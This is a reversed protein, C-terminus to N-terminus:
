KHLISGQVFQSTNLISFKNHMDCLILYKVDDLVDQKTKQCQCLMLFMSNASKTRHEFPIIIIDFIQQINLLEKKISWHKKFQILDWIIVDANGGGGSEDDHTTLLYPLNQFTNMSRVMSIQPIKKLLMLNQPNWLTLTTGAAVFLITGDDSYNAATVPDRHYYGTMLSKWTEHKKQGFTTLVYNIDHREKNSRNTEPKLYKTVHCEDWIRFNHDNHAFTLFRNKHPHFAIGKILNSHHPSDIRTNLVFEDKSINYHWVQLTVLNVMNETEDISNIKQKNKNKGDNDEMLLDDDEDEDQDKDDEDVNGDAQANIDSGLVSHTTRKIVTILRTGDQNFIMFEAVFRDPFKQQTRSILPYPVLQLSGRSEDKNLDYFQISGPISPIVFCSRNRPNSCFNHHYNILKPEMRHCIGIGEITKVITNNISDVICIRNSDLCIAFKIENPSVSISRIPGGLRPLYQHRQTELQTLVLVGEEGGSLMYAGDTTFTISSVMHAHWHIRKIMYRQELSGKNRNSKNLKKRKIPKKDQLQNYETRSLYTFEAIWEDIGQCKPKDNNISNNTTNNNNSSVSFLSVFNHWLHIGGREDGFAICDNNPHFSLSKSLKWGRTKYSVLYLNSKISNDDKNFDLYIIIVERNLIAALYRGDFSIALNQISESENKVDRRQIFNTM